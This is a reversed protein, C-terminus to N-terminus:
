AFNEDGDRVTQYAGPFSGPAEAWGGVSHLSDGRNQIATMAALITVPKVILSLINMILAFSFGSEPQGRGSGHLIFWVVDLFVSLSLVYTFTKIPSNSEHYNYAWIGFFFIPINYTPNTSIAGFLSLGLHIGLLSALSTQQAFQQVSDM